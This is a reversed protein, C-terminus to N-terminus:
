HDIMRVTHGFKRGNEDKYKVEVTEGVAPRRFPVFKTQLGVKILVVQTIGNATVQLELMPPSSSLVKGKLTKLDGLEAGSDEATGTQTTIGVPLRAPRGIDINLNDRSSPEYNAIEYRVLNDGLSRTAVVEKLLYVSLIGATSGLGASDITLSIHGIKEKWFRGTGIRYSATKLDIGPAYPTEYMVRITTAAHGAFTVERLLWGPETHSLPPSLAQFNVGACKPYNRENRFPISRGDVWVSVGEFDSGSSSNTKEPRPFGILQTTADGTNFFRCVADVRYDKTRLQIIVHESDLRITEHSSVPSVSGRECIIPAFGGHSALQICLVGGAILCLVFRRISNM